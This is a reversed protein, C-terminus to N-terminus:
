RVTVACDGCLRLVPVACNCLMLDALRLSHACLLPRGAILAAFGGWDGCESLVGDGEDGLAAALEASSEFKVTSVPNGKETRSLTTRWAAELEAPLQGGIAQVEAAARFYLQALCGSTLVWPNGGAYIDGPYRGYLIGPIMNSDDASNIPYEAHFVQNYINITNAVETSSASFVGDDNYGDNLACIVAGDKQRNAEEFIFGNQYHGKIQDRLQNAINTYRSAQSHVAIPLHVTVSLRVFFFFFFSGAVLFRARWALNM